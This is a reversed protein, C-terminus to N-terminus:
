PCQNRQQVGTITAAPSLLFNVLDSVDLSFFVTRQLSVETTDPSVEGQVQRTHTRFHWRADPKSM